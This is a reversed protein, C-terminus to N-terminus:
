LYFLLFRKRFVVCDREFFCKAVTMKELGKSSLSAEVTQRRVWWLKPSRSREPEEYAYCVSSIGGLIFSVGLLSAVLKKM